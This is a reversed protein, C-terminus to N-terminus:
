TFEEEISDLKKQVEKHNTNLTNEDNAKANELKLFENKFTEFFICKLSIFCKKWIIIKM